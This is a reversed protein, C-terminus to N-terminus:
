SLQNDKEAHAPDRDPDLSDGTTSDFGHGKETANNLSNASVLVEETGDLHVLVWGRDDCYCRAKEDASLYSPKKAGDENTWGSM